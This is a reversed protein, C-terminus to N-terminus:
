TRIGLNELMTHAFRIIYDTQSETCYGQCTCQMGKLSRSFLELKVWDKGLEVGFVHPRCRTHTHQTENLLEEPIPLWFVKEMSSPIATKRLYGAIKEMGGPDIEDILYARM